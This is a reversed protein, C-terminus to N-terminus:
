RFFQMMRETMPKQEDQNRELLALRAKLDKMRREFHARSKVVPELVYLAFAARDRIEKDTNVGRLLPEYPRALAEYHEQLRVYGPQDMLALVKECESIQGQLAVKREDPPPQSDTPAEMEM